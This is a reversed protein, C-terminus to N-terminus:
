KLANSSSTFLQKLPQVAVVAGRRRRLSSLDDACSIRLRCGTGYSDGLRMTQAKFTAFTTRWILGFAEKNFNHRSRSSQRKWIETYAEKVTPKGTASGKWFGATCRSGETVSFNQLFGYLEEEM